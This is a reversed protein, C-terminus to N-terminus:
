LNCVALQNIRSVDVTDVTTLFATLELKCVMEQDEPEHEWISNLLYTPLGMKEMEKLENLCSNDLETQFNMVKKMSKNMNSIEADVYVSHINQDNRNTNGTINM